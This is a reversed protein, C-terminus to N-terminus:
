LNVNLEYNASPLKSAGSPCRCGAVITLLQGRGGEGHTPLEPTSEFVPLSPQPDFMNAGKPQNKRHLNAIGKTKVVTLV